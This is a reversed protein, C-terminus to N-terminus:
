QATHGDSLCAQLPHSNPSVYTVAQAFRVYLPDFLRNKRPDAIHIM